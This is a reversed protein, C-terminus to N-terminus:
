YGVFTYLLLVLLFVSLSVLYTVALVLFKLATLLVGQGFVRYLATSLWVLVSVGVGAWLWGQGGDTWKGLALGAGGAMLLLVFAFAHFHTLFLLHAVVPRGSFPYLLRMFVAMLPLLLFMATSTNSVMQRHLVQEEGTAAQFCVLQLRRKVRDADMWPLAFEPFDRSACSEWEDPPVEPNSGGSDVVADAGGFEIPPSGILSLSLFFVLSVLIYLRFPPTYRVRRGALYARTLEGPRLLLDRLTRWIRSDANFVHDLFERVVRPLSQVPSAENQGCDACYPGTLAEGCNACVGRTSAMSGAERLVRRHARMASGFRRVGEARMREAPGALYDDLAQQNRLRYRISRRSRGDAAPELDKLIRASLFGPQKLLGAVHGPLWEDLEAVRNPTIELNVEYIVGYDGDRQAM